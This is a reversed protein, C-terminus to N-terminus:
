PDTLAPSDDKPNTSRNRRSLSKILSLPVDLCSAINRTATLLLLQIRSLIGTVPRSAEAKLENLGIM